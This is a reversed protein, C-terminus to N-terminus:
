DAKNRDKRKKKTRKKIEAPPFFYRVDFTLYSGNLRIEQVISRYNEELYQFRSRYVDAFPVHYTAGLYFSGSNRTRYEMGLNLLGGGHIFGDTGPKGDFGLRVSSHRHFQDNETTEADSTFIDSPYFTLQVGAAANLFLRETAQVFFLLKIPHEYGIITFDSESTYDGGPSLDPNAAREIRLNYNRQVFNLGSELAFRKHFGYRVTMGASFGFKPSTFVSYEDNVAEQTGTNLFDAPFIPRFEVGAQISQDMDVSQAISAACVSCFIFVVFLRTM